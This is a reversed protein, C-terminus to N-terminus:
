ETGNAVASVTLDSTSNAGTLTPSNTKSMPPGAEVFPYDAGVVITIFAGCPIPAGVGTLCSGTGTITATTGSVLASAVQGSGSAVEVVRETVGAPAAGVTFTGGGNGDSVFGTVGSEAGLVVPSAPLTAAASYTINHGNTTVTTTASYQGSVPASPVLIFGTPYQYLPHQADPPAYAPAMGFLGNCGVFQGYVFFQNCGAPLAIAGGPGTLSAIGPNIYASNGAQNRFATVINQFTGASGTLSGFADNLTGVSMVLKAHTTFVPNGVTNNTTCGAMVGVGVLAILGASLKRMTKLGKM